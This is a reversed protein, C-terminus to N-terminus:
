GGFQVRYKEFPTSSTFTIVGSTAKKQNCQLVRVRFILAYYRLSNSRYRLRLMSQDKSYCFAGFIKKIVDLYSGSFETRAQHILFRKTNFSSQFVGCKDLPDKKVKRAYEKYNRITISRSQSPPRNLDLFSSDRQELLMKNIFTLSSM